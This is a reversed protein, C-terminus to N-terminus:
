VPVGDELYQAIQEFTQEESDNMVTLVSSSSLGVERLVDTPPKGTISPDKWYYTEPTSGWATSDVLDCLVGLCCFGSETRLRGKTQKYDGSRLARVWRDRLEAPHMM